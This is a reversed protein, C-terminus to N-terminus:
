FFSSDPSVHFFIPTHCTLFYSCHSVRVQLLRALRHTSELSSTFILVACPKKQKAPKGSEQEEEESAGEESGGGEKSVGDPDSGGGEEEEEKVEDDEGQEDAEAGAQQWYGQNTLNLLPIRHYM